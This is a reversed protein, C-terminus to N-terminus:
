INSNIIKKHKNVIFNVHIILHFLLIAFIMLYKHYWADTFYLAGYDCFM